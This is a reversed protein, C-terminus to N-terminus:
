GSKLDGSPLDEFVIVFFTVIRSIFNLFLPFFIDSGIEFFCLKGKNEIYHKRSISTRRLSGFAQSKLVSNKEIIVESTHAKREM